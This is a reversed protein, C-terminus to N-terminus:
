LHPQQLGQLLLLQLQLLQGTLQLVPAIMTPHLAVALAVARCPLNPKNPTEVTKGSAAKRGAVM